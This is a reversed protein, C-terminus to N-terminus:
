ATHINYFHIGDATVVLLSVAVVKGFRQPPCHVCAPELIHLQVAEVVPAIMFHVEQLVHLLVLLQAICEVGDAGVREALYLQCGLLALRGLVHALGNPVRLVM